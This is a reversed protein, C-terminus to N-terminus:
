RGAAAVGFRPRRRRPDQAHSNHVVLAYLLAADTSSRPRDGHGGGPRGSLGQEEAEAADEGARGRAAPGEGGLVGEVAGLAGEADGGNQDNVRHGHHVFNFLASITRSQPQLSTDELMSPLGTVVEPGPRDHADHMRRPLAIAASGINPQANADHVRWPHAFAANGINPQANADHVRLPHAIAASGANPQANADHVRLPHAIAASGINPQANADHVRLPHAIAASGINPQANADHVGRPRAIAASGINPQANADHMRVERQAEDRTAGFIDFLTLPSRSRLARHPGVPYRDRRQHRRSLLGAEPQRPLRSVTSPTLLALPEVEPAVEAVEEPLFPALRKTAVVRYGESFRGARTRFHTSRSRSRDRHICPSSRLTHELFTAM